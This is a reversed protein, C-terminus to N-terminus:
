SKMGSKLLKLEKKNLQRKHLVITDTRERHQFIGRFTGCLVKETVTNYEEYYWIDDIRHYRKGDEIALIDPDAPRRYKYRKKGLNRLIGTEPEVYFGDIVEHVGHKNCSYINGDKGRYTCTEVDIHSDKIHRIGESGSRGLVTAIESYVDDWPRGCSSALYKNLPGLLDSFSKYGIRKNYGEQKRSVPFRTFGDYDIGDDDRTFKGYHRAKASNATKSGRRPREIVVKGMDHRM